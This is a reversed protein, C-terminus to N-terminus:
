SANYEEVVQVIENNDVFYHASANRNGRSFYAGNNRATDGKNGTYHLVIYKVKNGNRSSYNYNSIMRIIQKMKYIM